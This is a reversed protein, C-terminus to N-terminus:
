NGFRPTTYDFASGTLQYIMYASTARTIQSGLTSVLLGIYLLRFNRHRLAALPSVRGPSPVSM